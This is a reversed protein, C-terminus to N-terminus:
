CEGTNQIVPLFVRNEGTMPSVPAVSTSKFEVSIPARWVGPYRHNPLVGPGVDISQEARARLRFEYTTNTCRAHFPRDGPGVFGEVLSRWTGSPAVRSEVDVLLQYAGNEIALVDASQQATWTLTITNSTTSTFPLGVFNATPARVMSISDIFAHNGHWQFPSHVRALLTMTMAEATVATRLNVWRTEVFNQRNESWVISEANADDSGVPDLGVMKAIYHEAPCDSPTASGGCLSVMWGSVSYDVGPTVSIQQSLAVDFSKGPEPPTEIDESVITLADRGELHEIFRDDDCGDGFHERAFMVLPLGDLFRIHWPDLRLPDDCEFNRALVTPAIPLTGNAPVSGRALRRDDAASRGPATMLALGCLVFGICILGHVRLFQSSQKM